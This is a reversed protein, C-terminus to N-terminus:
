KKIFQSEILWKEVLMPWESVNKGIKRLGYGHGGSPYIHLEAPVGAKKLALYYFLSNEVRVSDDGTQVIFTPPTAASVKMEPSLEEPKEKNTLYASYILVTFDPRASLKDAADILQYSREQFNNSTVASLHGGASFGLIGVRKEDIGWNKAQQRILGLARQADQMPALHREQGKRAPVRYKLLVANVGISNLWECIETGELDMALIHYGGGPCVLVTAGSNKEKAAPYFTITPVSVNGLRVVRQGAVLGGKEDTTDKEEGITGQEGPPTGPWLAIPELPVAILSTMVSILSFATVLLFIRVHM